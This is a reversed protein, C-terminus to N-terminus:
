MRDDWEGMTAALEEDTLEEEGDNNDGSPTEVYDSEDASFASLSSRPRRREPRRM